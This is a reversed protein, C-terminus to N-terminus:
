GRQMISSRINCIVEIGQDLQIERYLENRRELLSIRLNNSEIMHHLDQCNEDSRKLENLNIDVNFSLDPYRM